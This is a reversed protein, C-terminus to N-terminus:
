GTVARARRLVEDAGLVACIASLEPSRRTGTVLVRIVASADAISGAYADPDMKYAKQSPAFGLKAALSRIQDFPQRM